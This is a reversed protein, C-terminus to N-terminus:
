IYPTGIADYVIIPVPASETQAGQDDTAVATLSHPGISPNIWASNFTANTSEGVKVGDAFFEVKAVTGDNDSATAALPISSPALFFANNTPDTLAVNP